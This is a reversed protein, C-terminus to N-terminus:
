GKRRRAAIFGALFSGFLSATAPLPVASTNIAANDMTFHYSSGLYEEGGDAVFQLSDIGSFDFSFFRAADTNVVILQSGGQQVGNRFGTLTIELGWRSASAFYASAFDFPTASAIAAGAGAGNFASYAGSVVGNYFGSDFDAVQSLEPNQVWFNSWNLGAYGDAIATEAEDTVDDFSLVAAHSADINFMSLGLLLLPLHIIKM